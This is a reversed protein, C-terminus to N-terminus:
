KALFIKQILDNHALDVEEASITKLLDRYTFRFTGNQHSAGEPHYLDILEAKELIRPRNAEIADFFTQIPTHIPIPTTWDRESSPLHPIPTFKSEKQHLKMLSPIPMEAFLLRQKIDMKTLLQPHIEGFSAITEGNCRVEAQRGPHLSAHQSPHFSVQPLNFATFLNEILGKLTYFDVNKGKESFHAPAEKGTLLLGLMPIETPTKKDLFHIRGIEFASLSHNKLDVNTKAVQLLGPLLSPRLISYEETKAHIAQFFQIGRTNMMEQSLQALEPSILDSTLVEQLGLSICRARLAKEFLYDAHHPVDSLTFRANQKEIHNYGFIRIVEEILDIEESIDNRYSPVEVLLTQENLLSTKCELRKLISEIETQSLKTGLLQNTRETRLAIKKPPLSEQGIAIKPHVIAQPSLIQIWYAAEDLAKAVGQRDIGKEFRIASDTRIGTQKSAKRITTADFLAAELFINKTDSTVASNEGGMIGAIAVTKEKDRIVLTKEPITREIGDLGIWKEQTRTREVHLQHGNLRDFDFAHLPQGRKMLIFNTIDVVNSIPKMGYSLLEKQLWFPSPAVTVHEILRGMYLPCTSEEKISINMKKEGKSEKPSLFSHSLPKNLSASLERAVGLASFCHGLNPTLSIELIPTWLLLSLDKGNEWDSPLEMIGGQDKWLHLEQASCLMGHSEVGRLTAKQIIRHNGEQDSILAGVQAFATKIGARCNPAGCVVQLTEKGNQVQAIQLKDSSPHPAVSLVEGVIVRAFPPVENEIADVEIGLLTLTKAITEVPIDLPLFTQLSSLPIRM